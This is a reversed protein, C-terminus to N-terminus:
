RRPRARRRARELRDVRLARADREGGVVAEELEDRDRAREALRHPVTEGADRDGDGRRRADRVGLTTRDPERCGLLPDGLEGLTRVQDPVARVRREERRQFRRHRATAEADEADGPIVRGLEVRVVERDHGRERLLRSLRELPDQEVVRLPDHAFSELEEGREARSEVLLELEAVPDLREEVDDHGTERHRRADLEDVLRVGVCGRQHEFGGAIGLVTRRGVARRAVVSELEDRQWEDGLTAHEARDGEAPGAERGAIM